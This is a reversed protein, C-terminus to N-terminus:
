GGFEVRPQDREAAPESRTALRPQTPPNPADLRHPIPQWKLQLSAIMKRVADPKVAAAVDASSRGLVREPELLHWHRRSIQSVLEFRQQRFALLAQAMGGL